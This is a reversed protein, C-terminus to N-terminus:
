PTRACHEAKFQRFSVWCKVDMKHPTLVSTLMEDCKIYLNSCYFFSQKCHINNVYSYM